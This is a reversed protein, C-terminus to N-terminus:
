IIRMGKEVIEPYYEMLYYYLEITPLVDSLADHAGEFAAGDMIHAYAEALKPWKDGYPGPPKCVPTMARMTCFIDADKLRDIKELRSGLARMVMVDFAANHCVIRDAQRVLNNFLLYVATSPVGYQACVETSIGHTSEAGPDIAMWLDPLTLISIKALERREVVDLLVAGLQLLHPQTPHNYALKFNAKGTTETDFVLIKRM